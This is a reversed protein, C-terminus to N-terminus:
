GDRKLQGGVDNTRRTQAEDHTEEETAAPAEGTSAHTAHTATRAAGDVVALEVLSQTNGLVCGTTCDAFRIELQAFTVV